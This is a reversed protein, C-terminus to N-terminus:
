AVQFSGHMEAAHPDCVFRYTGQPALGTAAVALAASLTRTM